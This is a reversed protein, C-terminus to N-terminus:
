DTPPLPRALSFIGYALHLGGFSAAMVLNAHAALVSPPLALSAAGAALVCWRFAALRPPSHYSTALIATGHLLLWIPPLPLWASAVASATLAAAALYAPAVARLVARGQSTLRRAEAGARAARAANVGVWAVCACAVLAWLAVFRVSAVGARDAAVGVAIALLGALLSGRGTIAEYRQGREMLKRIVRLNQEIETVDHLRAEPRPM